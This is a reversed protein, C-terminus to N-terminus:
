GPWKGGPFRVAAERMTQLFEHKKIGMIATGHKAPLLERLKAVFEPSSYEPRHLGLWISLAYAPASVTEGLNKLGQLSVMFFMLTGLDSFEAIKDPNWDAHKFTNSADRLIDNFEKRCEKRVWSADFLLEKDPCRKAHIDHIIQHAAASLTHISVADGVAFWLEIACDLQRKAADLSSARIIAVDEPHDPESM